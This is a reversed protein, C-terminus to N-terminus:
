RAAVKELVARVKTLLSHRTFPKELFEIGENLVGHQAIVNSTYGSIYLTPMEHGIAHVRESLARGNMDPMIVDTILLDISGAHEDVAMIGERGSGATIVTYGSARLSEALLERVPPDDECLLITEDGRPSVEARPAPTEDDLAAEIAPLYVRFTTGCGPESRVTVHGGARTVIGHVTALGLGTGKDPAKTTFFPEFVRERTAADMGHGTDSVALLAHPGARADAQRSVYPEDLTVYRTELTLRGGNPMAHAANVVLNVIVQELQGADARVPKLLPDTTTELVIDETVLRRLMKDLGVLIQNLDLVKPQVVDRRSFTLLQRTLASAREASQEIREMSHVVEHDAGLAGRLNDMSLEINGLISTLINNFDHAVGGALQGVTKLKQSQRLRAELQRREEEAQKRDTIDRGVSIVFRPEGQEDKIASARYETPVKRGDKCVLELEITGSGEELVRQFFPMARELDAAGCYADPVRLRAVEADSYGTIDRVSRNWRLAKGTAPEFLLFTDLQADLAIDTFEKERRLAGEARKRDTIDQSVILATRPTGDADRVPQVTTLLWCKGRPFEVYCEFKATVGADIISRTRETYATAMQQHLDKFSKGVFDEPQGGFLSALRRNMFQCVGERNYLSILMEARDLILQYRSASEPRVVPRDRMRALGQEALTVVMETLCTLATTLRGEPVVPVHELALLYADADYGCSVAQERFWEVDPAEFLVQETLLSAVHAGDVIVPAAGDAFGSDYARVSLERVNALKATPERGSAQGRANPSPSTHHFKTFIDRPSAGILSEQDPYSVLGTTFGAVPSYGQFLERLRDVDVLDRFSHRGGVLHPRETGMASEMGGYENCAGDGLAASSAAPSAVLMVTAM